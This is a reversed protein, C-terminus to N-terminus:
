VMEQYTTTNGSKRVRWIIIGVIAGILLLGGVGAVVGIAWVPFAEEEETNDIQSDTPSNNNATPSNSTPSYSTPTATPTPSPPLPGAVSSPSVPANPNEAIPLFSFPFDLRVSYSVIQDALHM